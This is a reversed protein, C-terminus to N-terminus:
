TPSIGPTGQIVPRAPSGAPPSPGGGDPPSRSGTRSPLSVPTRCCRHPSPSRDPAARHCPARARHDPASLVLCPDPPPWPASAPLHPASASSLLGSRRAHSVAAAMAAAVPRRTCSSSRRRSHKFQSPVCVNSAKGASQSWEAPSRSRLSPPPVDECDTGSASLQDLAGYV